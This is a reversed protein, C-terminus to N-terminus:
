ESAVGNRHVTHGELAGDLDLHGAGVDSKVGEHQIPPLLDSATDRPAVVERCQTVIATGRATCRDREGCRIGAAVRACGRGDEGNFVGDVRGNRAFSLVKSHFAIASSVWRIKRIPQIGVAVCTRCKVCASVHNPAVVERCQTVVATGRSSRRDDKSRGVFAAVCARGGGGKGNFVCRVGDQRSVFHHDNIASLPWPLGEILGGDVLQQRDHICCAVGHDCQVLRTTVGVERNVETHHRATTRIVM